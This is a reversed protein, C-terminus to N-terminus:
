LTFIISNQSILKYERTCPIVSNKGIDEEACKNINSLMNFQGIGPLVMAIEACKPENSATIRYRLFSIIL